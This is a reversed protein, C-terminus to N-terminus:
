CSCCCPNRLLRGLWGPRREGGKGEDQHVSAEAAERLQVVLTEIAGTRRGFSALDSNQKETVTAYSRELSLLHTDLDKKQQELTYSTREHEKRLNKLEDQQSVYDMTMDALCGHLSVVLEMFGLYHQSADEERRGGGMKLEALGQELQLLRKTVATEQILLLQLLGSLRDVESGVEDGATYEGNQPKLIYTAQHTERAEKTVTEERRVLESTSSSFGEGVGM